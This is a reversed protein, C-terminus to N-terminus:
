AADLPIQHLNAAWIPPRERAHSRTPEHRRLGGATDQDHLRSHALLHLGSLTTEDRAM